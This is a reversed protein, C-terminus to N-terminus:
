FAPKQSPEPPAQFVANLVLALRYGALALQRKLTPLEADEYADGLDPPTTAFDRPLEGYTHLRAEQHTQTAWASASARTFTEPPFTSALLGLEEVLAAQGEGAHELLGSDWVRHLNSPSGYFDVPILNGGRDRGGSATRGESSHLPQHVDGVFHVLFMLAQVREPGTAAQNRLVEVCRNIAAVVCDGKPTPACDRAEDYAASELPIDVFHWNYTDARTRRVQDAWSSISSLSHGKLLASV